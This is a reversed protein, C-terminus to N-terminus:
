PSGDGALRKYEAALEVMGLHECCEGLTRYTPEKDTLAPLGAELDAFAEKRRGLKALIHGRTDRLGLPNPWIAIAADIIALATDLDTPETTALERALENALAVMESNNRFAQELDRRAEEPRGQRESDIGLLLHVLALQKDLDFIAELTARFSKAAPRRDRTLALLRHLAPVYKADQRLAEGLLGLRDATAIAPNRGKFDSFAVYAQTLADTYRSDPQRRLGEQLISLAAPFDERLVEARSWSLRAAVNDRDAEARARFFTAAQGAHRRSREVDCRLAYLRALSLSLEPISPAARALHTESEDLRGAELALGGLLAHAEVSDPNGALAHRLHNEVTRRASALRKVESLLLRAQWLHAPIFGYGGGEPAIRALLASARDKEGLAWCSRSLAFVFEPRGDERALREFCLRATRYDGSAFAREARAQYSSVRAPSFGQGAAALIVFAIAGCILAPLSALFRLRPAARPGRPPELTSTM